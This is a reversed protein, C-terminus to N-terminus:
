QGRAAARRVDAMPIAGNTLGVCQRAANFFGPAHVDVGAATVMQLTLQGQSGPDPFDSIGHARLCRAFALLDRTRARQETQRNGSVEPLIAQCAKQATKFGPRNIMTRPAVMAIRTQGPSTSVQPDPFSPVGHDRICRAYAYAAGAPSQPPKTTTSSPGGSGCGAAVAAVLGLVAGLVIIPGIRVARGDRPVARLSHM